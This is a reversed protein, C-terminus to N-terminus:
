REWNEKSSYQGIKACGKEFDVVQNLHLGCWPCYVIELYDPYIYAPGMHSHVEPKRLRETIGNKDAESLSLSTKLDITITNRDM